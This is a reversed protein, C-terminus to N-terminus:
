NNERNLLMEWPCTACLQDVVMDAAWSSVRHGGGM